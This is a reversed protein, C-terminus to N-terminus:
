IVTIGVYGVVDEQRTNAREIKEQIDILYETARCGAEKEQNLLYTNDHIVVTAV